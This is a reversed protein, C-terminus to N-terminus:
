EALAVRSVCALVAHLNGALARSAQDTVRGELNGGMEPSGGRAGGYSSLWKVGPSSGGGARRWAHSHLRATDELTHWRSQPLGRNMALVTRTISATTM